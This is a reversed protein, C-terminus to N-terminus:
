SCHTYEKDTGHNHILLINLTIVATVPLYMKIALPFSIFKIIHFIFSGGTISNSGELSYILPIQVRLSCAVKYGCLFLYHRTSTLSTQYRPIVQLLKSNTGYKPIKTNPLKYPKTHITYPTTTSQSPPLAPTMLRKVGLSKYITRVAGSVELRQM